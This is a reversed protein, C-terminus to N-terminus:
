YRGRKRGRRRVKKIRGGLESEKERAREKKGKM